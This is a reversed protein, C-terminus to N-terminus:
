GTKMEGSVQANRLESPLAAACRLHRHDKILHHYAKILRKIEFRKGGIKLLQSAHELKNVQIEDRKGVRLPTYITTVYSTEEGDRESRVGDDYEQREEDDGSTKRRRQDATM